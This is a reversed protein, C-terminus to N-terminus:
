KWVHQRSGDRDSPVVYVDQLREEDLVALTTTLLKLVKGGNTDVGGQDM